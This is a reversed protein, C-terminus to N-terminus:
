TPHVPCSFHDGFAVGDSVTAAVGAADGAEFAAAYATVVAVPDHPAADIGGDAAVRQADGAGGLSALVALLVVALARRVTMRRQEWHAWALM